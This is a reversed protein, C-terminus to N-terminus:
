SVRDGEDQVVVGSVTALGAPGPALRVPVPRPTADQRSTQNAQSLRQTVNWRRPRDYSHRRSDTRHSLSVIMATRLAAGTAPGPEPVAPVAAPLELRHSTRATM